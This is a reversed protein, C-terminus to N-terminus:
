VLIAHIEQLDALELYVVKLENEGLNISIVCSITDDMM